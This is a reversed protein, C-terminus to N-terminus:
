RSDDLLELRVDDVGVIRKGHRHCRSRQGDGLGLRLRHEDGRSSCFESQLVRRKRSPGICLHVPEDGVAADDAITEDGVAHWACLDGDDVFAHVDVADLSQLGRVHAGGEEERRLCRDDAVNRGQHRVLSLVIQDIRRRERHTLDGIRSEHDDAVAFQPVCELLVDTVFVELTM